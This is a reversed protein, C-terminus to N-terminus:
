VQGQSEGVDALLWHCCALHLYHSRQLSPYPFAARPRLTV